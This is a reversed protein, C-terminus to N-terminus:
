FYARGCKALFHGIIGNELAGLYLRNHDEGIIGHQARLLDNSYVRMHCMRTGSYYASNKTLAGNLVSYCLAPHHVRLSRDVSYVVFLLKNDM